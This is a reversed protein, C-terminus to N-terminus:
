HIAAIKFGLADNAIKHKGKFKIIEKLEKHTIKPKADNGEITTGSVIATGALPYPKEYLPSHVEFFYNSGKLLGEDDVYITDGEDNIDVCDFNGGIMRQIWQYKPESKDLYFIENIEGLEPRIIFHKM